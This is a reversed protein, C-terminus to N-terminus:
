RPSDSDSDPTEADPCSPSEHGGLAQPSDFGKGCEDCEWQGTEDGEDGEKGVPSLSDEEVKRRLSDEPYTVSEVGSSDEAGDAPKIIVQYQIQVDQVQLHLGRDEDVWTDGKEYETM